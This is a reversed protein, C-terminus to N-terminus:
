GAYAPAPVSVPASRRQALVIGGAVYYFPSLLFVVIGAPGLLAAVGLVTSAIGFWKPLTATRLAGLGTGIMLVSTGAVWPLWGLSNLYALAMTAESHGGKAAAQTAAGVWSWIAMASATAIGGAYAAASYLGEGGEGSRLHARLATVYFLLLVAFVAGLVASGFLAGENDHYYAIVKAAPGDEINPPSGQLLAAGGLALGALVGAWPLFRQFRTTTDSM